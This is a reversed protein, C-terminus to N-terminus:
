LIYRKMLLYIMIKETQMCSQVQMSITCMTPVRQLLSASQKTLINILIILCVITFLVMNLKAIVNNNETEKESSVSEKKFWDKLRKKVNKM